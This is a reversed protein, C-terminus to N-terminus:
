MKVRRAIMLLGSICNTGFAVWKSNVQGAKSLPNPVKINPKKPWIIFNAKM